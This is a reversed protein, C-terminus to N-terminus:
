TCTRTHEAVWNLGVTFLWAGRDMSNEQCFYQFPNVNEVEPTRVLLHISDVNRTDTDQM